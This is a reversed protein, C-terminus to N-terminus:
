RLNINLEKDIVQKYKIDYLSVILQTFVILLTQFYFLTKKKLLAQFIFALSKMPGM